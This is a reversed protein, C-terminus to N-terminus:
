GGVARLDKVAVAFGEIQNADLRINQSEASVRIGMRKMPARKEEITNNVIM